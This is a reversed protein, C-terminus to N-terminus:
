GIYGTEPRKSTKRKRKDLLNKINSKTFEAKKIREELFELDVDLNLRDNLVIVLEKSANPDIQPYPLTDALLCAGPVGYQINCWAPIVGNAGTIFGGSLVTARGKKTELLYKVLEKDSGSVYVKRNEVVPEEPVFAGLAIIKQANVDHCYKCIYDSLEYIGESTSPQYDATMIILDNSDKSEWHFLSVKPMSMEGEKNVIAHPPFDHYYIKKYEKAELGKIYNLAAMKGVHAIGPMGILIIPNRTKLYEIDISNLNKEIIM